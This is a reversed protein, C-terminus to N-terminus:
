AGRKVASNACLFWREAMRKWVAKTEPDKSVQAMTECDAAYKRFVAPTDMSRRGTLDKLKM